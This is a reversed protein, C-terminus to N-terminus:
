FRGSLEVGNKSVSISPLEFGARRPLFPHPKAAQHDSSTGLWKPRHVAMQVAFGALGIVGASIFAANSARNSSAQRDRLDALERCAALEVNWCADAGLESRLAGRLQDADARAAAADFHFGVGAGVALLSLGGSIALPWWEFGPHPPLNRPPDAVIIPQLRERLAWSLRLQEGAKATVLASQPEYGELEARVALVGPEAFIQRPTVPSPELVRGAVSLVASAPEVDLILTAVHKQCEALRDANLEVLLPDADPPMHSLGFAFHEAADRWRGLEIEILGLNVSVDASRRHEWVQLMLNFATQWDEQDMAVKAKRYIPNLDLSSGNSSTAGAGLIAPELAHSTAPVAVPGLFVSSCLTAIWRRAGTLSPKRGEKSCTRM